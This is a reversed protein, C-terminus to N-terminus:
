RPAISWSAYGPQKAGMPHASISPWVLGERYAATSVIYTVDHASAGYANRWAAPMQNWQGLYWLSIINKIMPGYKNDTVLTKEFQQDPLDTESSVNVSTAKVGTVKVGTAKIGLEDWAAFLEGLLGAGFIKAICDYYTDQVGTTQLEAVSFGTAASSLELFTQRASTSM